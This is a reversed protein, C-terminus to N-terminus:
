ILQFIFCPSLIKFLIVMLKFFLSCLSFKNNKPNNISYEMNLEFLTVKPRAIILGTIYAQKINAISM